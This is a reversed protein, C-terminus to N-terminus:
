HDGAEAPKVSRVVGNIAQGGFHKVADSPTADANNIFTLQLNAYAVANDGTAGTVDIQLTSNVGFPPPYQGNITIVAPGTVRFGNGLMSVVGGKVTIHHTHANRSTAGNILGLDSHEMTLAASFDATGSSGLVKLSWTGRMEYSGLTASNYDSITGALKIPGPDQAVAGAGLTLVVMLSALWYVGKNMM